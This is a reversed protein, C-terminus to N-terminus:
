LPTTSCFRSRSVGGGSITGHHYIRTSCVGRGAEMVGRLRPLVTGRRAAAGFADPADLAALLARYSAMRVVRRWPAVACVCVDVIM